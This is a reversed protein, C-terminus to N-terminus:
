GQRGAAPFTVTAVLGTGSDPDSLRVEAGLAQAVEQVISLGLGCGPTDDQNLRCFREFVRARDGPPIGPGNDQVRLTIGDGTRGLALTVKGGPPTYRLANDVLNAVLEHLMAAPARLDVPEGAHDFGLDINRAHALPAQEELVRQTLTALDVPDRPRSLQAGAEAQSLTLLQNVLRTGQRVSESMAGLVEDKLAPDASRLGHSAQTQLVAFPTRLQHSANAIFRSRVAMQADLRQIYSNLAEVLPRLEQPLPRARLPELSGPKRRGVEDRLRLIDKLGRRLAFWILLGALALTWMDQRLTTTWLKRVLQDHDQLTQAVEIIVPGEAPAAFVPQAYAVVRVAEGRVEAPFRVSEEPRLGMPPPPLEAYGSLLVGQPSAIRYYVRDEAGSQFLELAAPPIAVDLLGDEFRIQQAITRASGLLLRDQVMDATRRAEQRALALNVLALAGLPVLLWLLLRARLSLTTTEPRM